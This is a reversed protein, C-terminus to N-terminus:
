SMRVSGGAFPRGEWASSAETVTSCVCSPPTRQASQPGTMPPTAAASAAAAPAPTQHSRRRGLWGHDRGRGARYGSAASAAILLGSTEAEKVVVQTPAVYCLQSCRAQSALGFARARTVKPLSLRCCRLSSARAEEKRRPQRCAPLKV